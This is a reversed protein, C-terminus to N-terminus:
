HNEAHSFEYRYFMGILKNMLGGFGSFLAVAVATGVVGIQKPRIVAMLAAAFFSAFRIMKLNKLADQCYKCVKTHQNWVDFVADKSVAPMTADGKYPIFGGAVRGMWNRFNLVGQDANTSLILKQYTDNLGAENSRYEKNHALSREQTHLFLADQNLFASAIIHNLWIPIPASFSSFSKPMTKSEGKDIVMRGIHNCFGPTTPSSYLELNQCAGNDGFPSEILVQAPANFTTTAWEGDLVKTNQKIKFGATTMSTVTQVEMTQNTYRNGVVNHHSSPVHAPDVVNEIFYDHGYPLERYNWPGKWLRDDSIGHDFFPVEKLASEIRSDDSSDPWVWLLGDVIKVPFSNCNSKPNSRVNELADKSSLQPVDIMAGEGDFRWGHYSCLLSGDDEIRGESLPVKRHPCQDLFVRWNGETKKAGRKRNKRAGFLPSKEVPGDNWIVIGMGLLKFAHPKEQDLIEVPAVPYWQKFWDFAEAPKNSSLETTDLLPASAVLLATSRTSFHLKAPNRGAIAHPVQFAYASSIIWSLIAAAPLISSKAMMM